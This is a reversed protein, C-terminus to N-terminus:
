FLTAPKRLNARCTPCMKVDKDAVPNGCNGCKFKIAARSGMLLLVVLMIVGIIVGIAGAFAGLLFPALLGLLQLLCGTGAMESYRKLEATSQSPTVDSQEDMHWGM